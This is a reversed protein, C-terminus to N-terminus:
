AKEFVIVSKFFQYSYIDRVVDEMAGRCQYFNGGFNRGPTQQKMIYDFVWDYVRSTAGYAEEFGCHLDEIFYLGGSKVHPFGNLFTKIQHEPFHSGDDIIFDLNNPVDVWSEPKTSDGVILEMDPIDLSPNHWVDKHEEGCYEMCYIDANPFYDMWMRISAGSGYGIELMKNTTMRKPEMLKEYFIVYAHDSFRKDTGYKDALDFLLAM